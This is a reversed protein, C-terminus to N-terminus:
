GKWQTDDVTTKFDVEVLVPLEEDRTADLDKKTPKGVFILGKMPCKEMAIQTADMNEPDYQDYNIGPLNNEIQFLSSAKQCAKCGICGVECVAKVDKGFDKNSCGVVLMRDKKFPVMSIINRPCVRACAGCGTCAEYDVVAVGDVVHIADFACATFCDGMGLCGYTCGQVGSILNAASCTKEGLYPSRKLRQASTARCHVVPRMPWSPKLDQGMIASLALACADGGVPCLTCAAGKEVVAEAYSACGVFGCGGCNAGPLAATVAEIRADVDVHFKRKAWGLVVGAGVSLATM